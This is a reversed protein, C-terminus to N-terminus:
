IHQPAQGEILMIGNYVATLLANSPDPFPKCLARQILIYARSVEKVRPTDDQMLEDMVRVAVPHIYNLDDRYHIIVWNVTQSIRQDPVYMVDKRKESHKWGDYKAIKRVMDTLTPTTTTM